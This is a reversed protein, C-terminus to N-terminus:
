RIVRKPLRQLLLTLSRIIRVNEDTQSSSAILDAVM